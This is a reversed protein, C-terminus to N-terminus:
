LNLSDIRFESNKAPQNFGFTETESEGNEGLLNLEEINTKFTKSASKNNTTDNSKSEVEKLQLLEFSITKEKLDPLLLDETICFCHM